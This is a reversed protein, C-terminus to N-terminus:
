VIVYPEAEIQFLRLRAHNEAFVPFTGRLLFLFSRQRTPTCGRSFLPKRLVCSAMIERYRAQVFEQDVTASMWQDRYTRRERLANREGQRLVKFDVGGDLEIPEIHKAWAFLPLAAKNRILDEEHPLFHGDMHAAYVEAFLRTPHEAPMDELKTPTLSAGEAYSVAPSFPDDSMEAHEASNTHMQAQGEDIAANEGIM